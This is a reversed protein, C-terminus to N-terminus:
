ASTNGAADATVNTRLRRQAKAWVAGREAHAPRRARRSCRKISAQAGVLHWSGNLALSSAVALVLGYILV